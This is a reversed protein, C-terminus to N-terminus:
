KLVEQLEEISNIIKTQDVGIKVMLNEDLDNEGLVSCIIKKNLGQAYGFEYVWNKTVDGNIVALVIDSNKIGEINGTYTKHDRTQPTDRVPLHIKHGGSELLTTIKSNIDANFRSSLLYIKM